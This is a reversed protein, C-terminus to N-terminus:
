EVTLTVTTSRVLTGSTGTVTITYTQETQSFYGGEGCGSVAGLSALGVLMWVLLRQPRRRYRKLCAIPLLLLAFAAPGLRRGRSAMSSQPPVSVTFTTNAGAAGPTVTAPNFTYTAGPPLNSASMTVPNTFPGNMSSIVITFNASAGPPILQRGTSAAVTFDAAAAVVLSFVASNAATFNTDGSYIATISHTGAALASTTLSATNGTITATGLVTTGDAFTVTGTAGSPVTVTLTVASGFPAPNLSSAMTVPATPGVGPTAPMVNLTGNLFAFLYNAAALTGQAVIIPYRGVPSIETATTLLTPTGIVSGVQTDGGVFGTITYALSGNPQNFPRTVNTATVTLIAPTVLQPLVDSNAPAHSGDGSYAVTIPHTGPTLTSTTFAAVEGVLPINGSRNAGGDKFQVTGTAGSPVTATFTLAQGYGSPNDSSILSVAIQAPKVTLLVPGGTSTLFNPDGSYVARLSHPSGAVTFTSVTISAEGTSISATGLSAAGDFFTISGTATLSSATYPTVNATLTVPTGFAITDATSLLLTTTTTVPSGTLPIAPSTSGDFITSETEPYTAYVEHTASGPINVGTLMATATQTVQSLLISVTDSVLNAVALDAIGDGNFDGVSVGYPRGGVAVPSWSAQTFSGIGNGLLIRVENDNSDTVALDVIGDGNFDGVSVSRPVNGAAFPSGTAQTFTGHGDGLLISVTNDDLNTVALDAFGDSNFDGVAVGFPSTGVAVQSTGFTGDGNGLLISVTNSGQNAVELDAIGDGNLDGVAVGRPLSGVAVRPQVETFGGSGDGLLISVTTAGSNTVALDANGDNNFDGVAVYDPNAGVAVPSGPAERFTGDGNGLLVSVTNPYFNTVALDAFGDGNFDGVAVGIPGSGASVTSAPAFGGNGDGLLISLNNSGPNPVALDPIGDGNFDGVGANNPNSGVAVPSGTANVFNQALTAAGLTATGLSRNLNTADIFDVNGTPGAAANGIGVVTATLTYNGASGSSAISTTTPFSSPALVTVSQPTSTSTTHTTTGAFVAHYSHLGSGPFLRLVATGESTLQATGFVALGTCNTATADCFTVLGPSVPAGGATVTATLTVVTQPPLPSGPSSSPSVALTTTTATQARVMTGPLVVTVLLLVMRLPYRLGCSCFLKM